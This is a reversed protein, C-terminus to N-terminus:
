SAENVAITIASSPNDDDDNDDKIMVANAPVYVVRSEADARAAALSNIMTREAEAMAAEDAAENDPEAASATVVEVQTSAITISPRRKPPQPKVIQISVTNLCNLVPQLLQM